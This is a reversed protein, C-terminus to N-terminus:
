RGSGQFELVAASGQRPQAMVQGPHSDSMEPVPSRSYLLTPLPVDPALMSCPAARADQPPGNPSVGPTGYPERERLVLAATRQREHEVARVQACQPLPGDGILVNDRDMISGKAFDLTALANNYQV